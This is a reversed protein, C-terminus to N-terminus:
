PQSAPPYKIQYGDPIGLWERAPAMNRFPKRTIRRDLRTTASWRHAVAYDAANGVVWANLCNEFYATAWELQDRVRKIEELSDHYISPISVDRMDRLINMSLDLLPDDAIAKFSLFGEGVEFEGFQRIFICNVEPDIYYTYAM